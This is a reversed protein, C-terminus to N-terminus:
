SPLGALYQKVQAEDYISTVGHARNHLYKQFSARAREHDGEWQYYRALRYQADNVLQLAWEMGEGCDGFAVEELDMNLLLMWVAAAAQEQGTMYLPGAYHWLALPCSPKLELAHQSCALAKEYHKEEYYTLSLMMWVWHDTPAFVLEEQLLSRAQRWRDRALLREIKATTEGSSGTRNSGNRTKAKGWSSGANAKNTNKASARNNKAKM